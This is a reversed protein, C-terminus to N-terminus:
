LVLSSNHHTLRTKYLLFLSFYSTEEMESLDRSELHKTTIHFGHKLLQNCSDNFNDGVSQTTQGTLVLPRRSIIAPAHLQSRVDTYDSTVATLKTTHHSPV